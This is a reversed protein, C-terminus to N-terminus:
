YSVFTFVALFSIGIIRSVNRLFYYTFNLELVAITADADYHQGHTVKHTRM